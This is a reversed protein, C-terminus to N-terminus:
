ATPRRLPGLEPLAALAPHLRGAEVDAQVGAYDLRARSRVVARRVDVMVPEGAADLDITWLM